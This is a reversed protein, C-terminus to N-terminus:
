CIPATGVKDLILFPFRFNKSRERLSDIIRNGSFAQRELDEPCTQDRESLGGYEYWRIPYSTLMWSSPVFAIVGIQPILLMASRQDSLTRILAM